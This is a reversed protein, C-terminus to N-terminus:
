KKRKSLAQYMLQGAGVMKMEEKDYVGWALKHYAPRAVKQMTLMWQQFSLPGPSVRRRLYYDQNEVKLAEFFLAKPSGKTKRAARRAIRCWLRTAATWRKWYLLYDSYEEVRDAAIDDDVREQIQELTWRTTHKKDRLHETTSQDSDLLFEDM